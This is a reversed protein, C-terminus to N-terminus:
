LGTGPICSGQPWRQLKGQRAHARTWACNHKEEEIMKALKEDRKEDRKEERTEGEEKREHKKKKTRRRARTREEEKM